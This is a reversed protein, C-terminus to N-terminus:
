YFMCALLAQEAGWGCLSTPPRPYAPATFARYVLAHTLNSEDTSPQRPAQEKWQCKAMVFAQQGSGPGRCPPSGQFGRLNGM